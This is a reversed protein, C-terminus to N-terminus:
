PEFLVEQEMDLISTRSIKRGGGGVIRMVVGERGAFDEAVKESTSSSM